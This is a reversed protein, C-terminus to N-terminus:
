GLAVGACINPGGCTNFCDTATTPESAPAGAGRAALILDATLQRVAERRLALRKHTTKKMGRSCVVGCPSGMGGLAAHVDVSIFSLRVCSRPVTM